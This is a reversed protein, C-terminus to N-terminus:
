EDASHLCHIMEAVDVSFEKVTEEFQVLGM